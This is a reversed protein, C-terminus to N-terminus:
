SNSCPEKFSNFVASKIRSASWSLEVNCKELVTRFERRNIYCNTIGVLTTNSMDSRSVINKIFLLRRLNETHTSLLKHLCCILNRVSEWKFYGFIQRFVSNWWSNMSQLQKNDLIGSEIGYTLSTLCYSELLKLRVLDCAFKTNSLICNLTMFFKRRSEKLDVNFNKHANIWVGLYKIQQSWHITQDGILMSPLRAIPSPGIFICHSKKSNFKLGLSSGVSNCIDLMSQLDLISASILILDDAYMICGMYFNHLKCGYDSKRLTVLLINVYCNFLLPSLIGGQRVGSNIVFSDSYQGNWKVKSTLKSYWNVILRIFLKPINTENLTTFLTM